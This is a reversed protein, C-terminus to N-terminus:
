KEIYRKRQINNKAKQKGTIKEAIQRVQLSPQLSTGVVRVKSHRDPYFAVLVSRPIEM